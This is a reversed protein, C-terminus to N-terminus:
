WCPTVLATVRGNESWTKKSTVGDILPRGYDETLIFTDSQKLKLTWYPVFTRENNNKLIAAEMEAREARKRLVRIEAELEKVTKQGSARISAIEKRWRYIMEVAVDLKQAVASATQGSEVLQVAQRKTEEDFIRRAKRM